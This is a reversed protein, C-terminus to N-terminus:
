RTARVYRRGLRDLIGQAGEPQGTPLFGQREGEAREREDGARNRGLARSTGGIGGERPPGPSRASQARDQTM